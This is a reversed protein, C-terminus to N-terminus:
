RWCFFYLKMFHLLESKIQVIEAFSVLEFKAILKNRILQCVGILTQNGDTLGEGKKM